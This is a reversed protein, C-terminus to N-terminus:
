RDDGRLQRTAEELRMATVEQPPIPHGIRLEIKAWLKYPRRKLLPDRRSFLSGWLNCLAVPVVPVPHEAIIKEIGKRFPQIEGDATIAGEPFIGLMEEEDLTERIRRYAEELVKPDESRSAIPIAKGTRFIFHLLPINFIRYYMVFRVPRRIMGGLILPDVFSVHNAAVIVPGTEPIRDIGTVKVRYITHILIWVLFRMLFEPVLSFIYVAVIANLIATIMFLQPITFGARGLLVMAYIAAIVMFLANLINNGAIVRSRRSPESRQQVLAYLPVIYFGGFVGIMLLDLAIRWSGGHAFFTAITTGQQVTDPSALYLDIGFVTLGISGFPVLGIEVQRGSLRECLLSGTSIGVIFMALLVSMLNEDGGLVNQSYSPIQVLVTAGFFWFWSIGLVSNLVTSNENIFRINRVTESFINWNIKLDPAVAEAKPIGLSFLYGAVAVALAALSVWVPWGAEIGALQPGAITGALIAVFTGMEVLANGGVLERRSLVQPLIGYKIPGFITSQFGLMFLVGLLLPLNNLWFGLTAAVMIVVELLKIRRVQMSKEYKDAFQGFLASFLFFPAIFVMASLNVVQDTNLGALRGGQFVLLAALANKFINDNLAGLAQTMFFPMFRRVRFLNFQSHGSV